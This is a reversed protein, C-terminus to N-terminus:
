VTVRVTELRARLKEVRSEYEVSSMPLSTRHERAGSKLLPVLWFSRGREPPLDLPVFPPDPRSKSSYSRSADSALLGMGRAAKEFFFSSWDAEVDSVRMRFAATCLDNWAPLSLKAVSVLDGFFDPVFALFAM